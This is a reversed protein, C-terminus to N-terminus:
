SRGRWPPEDEWRKEQKVGWKSGDYVWKDMNISETWDKWSMRFYVRDETYVTKIIIEPGDEAEVEIRKAKAWAADGVLLYEFGKTNYIQNSGVLLDLEDNSLTQKDADLKDYLKVLNHTLRKVYGRNLYLGL